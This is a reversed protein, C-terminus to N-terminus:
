RNHYPENRLITLARYVQELLILRAMQHTFTMPSLSLIIDGRARVADSLGYAGGLVLAMEGTGEVMRRGLLASLEESTLNRGREDLVVTFTQPSVRELLREGEREKQRRVDGGKEEKLEVTSFPLYRQIRASFDEVGERLYSESM